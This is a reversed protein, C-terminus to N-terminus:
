ARAELFTAVRDVVQPQDMWPWHGADSVRDLEARPLVEAYTTGIGIDLWPDQEGWLM